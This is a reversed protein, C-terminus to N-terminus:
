FIELKLDVVAGVLQLLMGAEFLLGFVREVAVHAQFHEGVRPGQLAVHLDM